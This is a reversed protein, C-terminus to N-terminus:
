IKVTKFRVSIANVQHIMANHLKVTSLVYMPLILLFLMLLVCTCIDAARRFKTTNLDM